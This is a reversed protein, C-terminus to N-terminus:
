LTNLYESINKQASDISINVSEINLLQTQEQALANKEALLSAELLAIREVRENYNKQLQTLDSLKWRANRITSAQQLIQAAIALKSGIPIKDIHTM